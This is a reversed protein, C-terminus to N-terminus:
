INCEDKKAGQRLSNLFKKLSAAEEPTVWWGIKTKGQPNPKRGANERKGGRTM